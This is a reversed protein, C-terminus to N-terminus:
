EESLYKYVISNKSIYKTIIVLNKKCYYLPIINCNNKHIKYLNELLDIDNKFKEQNLELNNFNITTTPIFIHIKNNTKTDYGIYVKKRLGIGCEKIIKYHCPIDM